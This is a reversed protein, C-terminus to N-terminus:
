CANDIKELQFMLVRVGVCGWSFPLPYYNKRSIHILSNNLQKITLIYILTCIYVTLVEESTQHMLNLERVVARMYISEISM